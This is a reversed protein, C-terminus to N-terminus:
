QSGAASPKQFHQDLTEQPIGADLMRQYIQQYKQPNLQGADKLRKMAAAAQKMVNLNQGGGVAGRPTGFRSRVGAVHKEMAADVAEQKLEDVSTAKSAGLGLAEKAQKLDNGHYWGKTAEGLKTDIAEAIRAREEEGPVYELAPVKGYVGTDMQAQMLKEYAQQNDVKSVNGFMDAEGVAKGTISKYIDWYTKEGESPKDQQEKKGKEALAMGGPSTPIQNAYPDFKGTLNSRQGALGRNETDSFTEAGQNALWSQAIKQPDVGNERAWSDYVQMQAMVAEFPQVATQGGEAVKKRGHTMPANYSKGDAGTNKIHWVLGDDTDEVDVFEQQIDSPGSSNMTSGHIANMGPILVERNFKDKLEQPAGSMLVYQASALGALAKQNEQTMKLNQIDRSVGLQFQNVDIASQSQKMQMGHAERDMDMRERRMQLEEDRLRKNEKHADMAAGLEMGRAFGNVGSSFGTM